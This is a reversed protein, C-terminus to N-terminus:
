TRREQQQAVAQLQTGCRTHVCETNIYLQATYMANAYM